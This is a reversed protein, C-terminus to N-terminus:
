LRAMIEINASTNIQLAGVTVLKRIDSVKKFTMDGM